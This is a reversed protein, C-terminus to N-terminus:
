ICSSWYGKKKTKLCIFKILIETNSVVVCYQKEQMARHMARHM